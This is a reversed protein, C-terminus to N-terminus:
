PVASGEYALHHRRERVDQLLIRTQADIDGYYALRDILEKHAGDGHTKEAREYLIAEMLQHLIEYFDRLTDSPYAEQRTEALRALTERAM